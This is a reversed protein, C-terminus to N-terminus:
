FRRSKAPKEVGAEAFVAFVGGATRVRYHTYAAQDMRRAHGKRATHSGRVADCQWRRYLRVARLFQKVAATRRDVADDSKALRFVTKRYAPEFAAINELIKIADKPPIADQDLLAAICQQDAPPLKELLTGAELVSHQSWGPRQMFPFQEALSTQTEARAQTPASM